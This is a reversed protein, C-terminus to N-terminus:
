EDDFELDDTSRGSMMRKIREDMKFSRDLDRKMTSYSLLNEEQQLLRGDEKTLEYELPVMTLYHLRSSRYSLLKNTFHSKM